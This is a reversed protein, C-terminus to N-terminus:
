KKCAVYDVFSRLIKRVFTCFGRHGGKVSRESINRKKINLRKKASKEETNTGIETDKQQPCESKKKVNRRVCRLFLTCVHTDVITPSCSFQESNGTFGWFVQVFEGCKLPNLFTLSVWFGGYGPPRLNSDQRRLWLLWRIELM